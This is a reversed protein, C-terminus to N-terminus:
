EKRLIYVEFPEIYEGKYVFRDDYSYLINGIKM